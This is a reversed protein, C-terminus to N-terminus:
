YDYERGLTILALNIAQGAEGLKSASIKDATDQTPPIGDDSWGVTVSSAAFASQYPHYKTQGERAPIGSNDSARLLLDVLRDTGRAILDSGGRGLADLNVM